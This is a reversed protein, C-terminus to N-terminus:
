LLINTLQKEILVALSQGAYVPLAMALSFVIWLTRWYKGLLPM